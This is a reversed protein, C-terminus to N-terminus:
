ENLLEIVISEDDNELKEINETEKNEIKKEITINSVEEKNILDKNKDGKVFDKVEIKEDSFWWWSKKGKEDDKKPKKGERYIKTVEYSESKKKLPMTITESNDFYEHIYDESFDDGPQEAIDLGFWMTIDDAAKSLGILDEKLEEEKLKEFYPSEYDPYNLAIVKEIERYSNLMNLKKYSERLFILADANKPSEPYNEITYQCRNIVAVYAKRKFYFNAVHLEYSSLTNRLYRMRRLSDSAYKSNKYKTIVTEFDKFANHLNEPDKDDQVHPLVKNLFNKGRSFNVLGRLYHLYAMHRSTPNLNMFRDIEIISDDYKREKYLLYAINLQSQIAKPSFPALAQVERYAEIADEYMKNKQSTVALDYKSDVDTSIKEEETGTDFWSCGSIIFLLVISFTIKNIM